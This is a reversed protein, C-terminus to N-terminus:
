FGLRMGGNISHETYHNDGALTGYGLSLSAMESLQVNVTFGTNVFDRHPSATMTQFTSGGAIGATIAREDNAFEHQLTAYLNPVVIIKGIKWQYSVHGGVGMQFTDATQDAITLNLVGADTETFQDIWQRTYAISATPGLTFKGIRRDYGVDILGGIQNGDTHGKATRDITSFAIHRETDYFNHGYTLSGNVYVEWDRHLVRYTAYPGFTMTDVNAKGGSADLTTITHNYGTALGIAFDHGLRYDVGATSGVSIFGYGLRGSHSEQDGFIGSGNAFVGWPTNTPDTTDLIKIRRLFNRSGNAAVLQGDYNWSASRNDAYRLAGGMGTRLALQRSAINGNLQSSASFAAMALAEMKAATIQDYAAKVETATSLKGLANFVTDLDASAPASSLSRAVGLQSPSLDLTPNLLNNEVTLIVSSANYTAVVKLTPNISATINALTTGGLNGAVNIVTYQTGAVPAYSFNPALTLTTLSANGATSTLTDFSSNSQFRFALTGTGALDGTINMNGPAAVSGPTLSGNVTLTPTTFTRSGGFMTGSPGITMAGNGTYNAGFIVTGAGITTLGSHTNVGGLSLTGTGTKTFANAGAIIGDYTLTQGGIVDITGGGAGLAIGRNSDLAFSTSASLAGGGFVISGATAAGPATGLGSDAAISLTGANITTTGNYTNVGSLTLRGPTGASDTLVLNGNGSITGAISTTNGNPDVTFNQAAAINVDRTAVLAFNGNAKLTASGTVTVVGNTDGLRADTDIALTGGTLTTGGSYTNAGLLTLTGAGSKTLIGTTAIIGSIRTNGTGGITLSEGGLGTVSGLELLSIAGGAGVNANITADGTLTTAAFVMSQTASVATSAIGVTLTSANISLSAMSNTTGAIGTLTDSNIGSNATVTVARGFARSVDDALTLTGGSLTVAGSGLVANNGTAVLTGANVVTGGSYTNTGSLTATGGTSKTLVGAGGLVASITGAQVDYGTGTLVGTTGTITGGTITVTGVTDGLAGVDLTGGNVTVASTDDLVNNVGLILTGLNVITGGTYTNVRSLTVTGATSKTLAGAGGLIATVTGAQVDFSTGSLVGSAGTITGGTLTVVGVSDNFAGISLSGGNVTVAGTDELVNNAGIVLTGADVITGGTYSNAGSLNVTGGGVTLGGNGSVTNSLTKVGAGDLTLVQGGTDLTGSSALVRGAQVTFSQAATSLAFNATISLDQTAASMVIGGGSLTLGQTGGIRVINNPNAITISLVSLAAIDQDTVLNATPNTNDFIVNEGGTPAPAVNWNLTNPDSWLGAGGGVDTGTWTIQASVLPPKVFMLAFLIAGIWLARHRTRTLNSNTM